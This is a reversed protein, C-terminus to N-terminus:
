PEDKDLYRRSTHPGGRKLRPHWISKTAPTLPQGILEAFDKLDQETAFRIIIKSFPRVQGQQYEPMNQWEEEWTDVVKRTM